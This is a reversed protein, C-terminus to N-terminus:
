VGGAEGAEGLVPAYSALYHTGREPPGAVEIGLVPAATDLVQRLVVELREGGDGLLERPSRGVHAEPAHRNMRALAPNVRLYRLDRDLLAMGVPASAFLRDLVLSTPLSALLGRPGSSPM